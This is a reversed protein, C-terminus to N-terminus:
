LPAQTKEVEEKPKPKQAKRVAFKIYITAILILAPLLLFYWMDNGEKM